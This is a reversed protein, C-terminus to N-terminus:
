SSRAPACPILNAAVPPPAPAKVWTTPRPSPGADPSRASNGVVTAPSGTRVKAPPAASTPWCAPWTRRLSRAPPPTRTISPPCSFNRCGKVSGDNKGVASTFEVGVWWGGGLEPVKGVFRVIADRAGPPLVCAAGVAIQAAIDALGEGGDCVVIRTALRPLLARARLELVSLPVNSVRLLHGDRSYVGEERVDLVALEGGDDYRQRLQQANIKNM